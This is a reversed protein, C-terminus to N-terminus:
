PIQHILSKFHICSVTFQSLSRLGVRLFIIGEIISMMITLAFRARMAKKNRVMNVFDRHILMFVQTTFSVHRHDSDNHSLVKSFGLMDHRSDEIRGLIPGVDQEEKPFFGEAEL